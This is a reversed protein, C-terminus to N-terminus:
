RLHDITRAAPGRIATQRKAQDVRLRQSDTAALHMAMQFEREADTPHHDALAARAIAIHADCDLPAVYSLAEAARKADRTRGVELYLEVLRIHPASDSEELRCLASLQALEESNDHAGRALVALRYRPESAQPHFQLATNLEHTEQATDASLRRVLARQMRVFYGDHGLRVLTDLAMLADNPKSDAVELLSKVWLFDPNLEGSDITALLKRCHELRGSLLEAHAIAIASKPDRPPSPVDKLAPEVSGQAHPPVYQTAFSAFRERLSAVFGEDLKTVKTGLVTSLVQETPREQSWGVLLEPIKAIGFTQILYEVLYTSAVYAIALDDLSSANSFARNMELISPVRGARFAQYVNLEQKRSWEPRARKTEVEALGETFWRPVRHRSLHLHYVHSLEHYLTMGLNVPEDTPLRAVITQGFCVGQLFSAPLGSTRVGFSDQDDFLEVYLTEGGLRGYRRDYVRKASDLWRPVLQELPEKLAIPVRIDFPAHEVRVYQKDLVREFLVLTNRVRLDFPDQAFARILERRGEAEGGSRVLQIGLAAHGQADEPDLAIARRLLPITDAYRHEAEAYEAVLRFLRSYDPNQGLIQAVTKKFPEQEDALFQAAARLSLLDLHRPEQALGQDVLRRTNEFDLDRLRLGGLVYYANANTPDTTLAAEARREAEKTDRAEALRVRAYLLQADPHNPAYKLAEDAVERAHKPDHADLYLEGRFLLTEVNSVGNREALNFLENADQFVGLRHAARGSIALQESDAKDFQADNFDTVLKRYILRAESTLGKDRLLDALLLRLRRAAPEESPARLLEIARDLEGLRKLCEGAIRCADPRLESARNCHSLSLKLAQDRRGTRLLLESLAIEATDRVEPEESILRRLAMEAVEYHASALELRASALRNTPDNATVVVLPKPPKAVLKQPESVTVASCSLLLPCLWALRGLRRVEQPNMTHIHSRLTGHRPRGTM